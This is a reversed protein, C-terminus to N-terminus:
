TEPDPLSALLPFELSIIAGTQPASESKLNGKRNAAWVSGGAASALSRVIALGLGLHKTPWGPPAAGRIPVPRGRQAHHSSFGFSFITELASEPIGPGSDSFTILLSESTEALEIHIQGGAPMVDVANRCLNVLIRTLDEGAMALPQHGGTISLDVAVGPGAIAALLNQNAALDAALDQIQDGPHFYRTQQLYSHGTRHSAPIADTDAPSIPCVRPPLHAGPLHSEPLHADPLHSDPQHFDLRDSVNQLLNESPSSIGREHSGSPEPTKASSAHDLAALKELLRRSAGGVLRLESAYHRSPASLVGPEELLDCYLDMAAVMNRADHILSSLSDALRDLPSLRFIRATELWPLHRSSAGPPRESAPVLQLGAHNGTEATHLLTEPNRRGETRDPRDSGFPGGPGDPKNWGDTQQM